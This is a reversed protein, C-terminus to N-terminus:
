VWTFDRASAMEPQTGQTTFSDQITRFIDRSVGLGSDGSTKATM